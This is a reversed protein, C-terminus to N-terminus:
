SYNLFVVIITINDTSNKKLSHEALKKAINIRKNTRKKTTEDYCNLLIFNIVEQNTMVDWLGDCGLVFFKDNKDLKYRYLDPKHTLFPTADLDGFSRSVSLDKIRWDYGDFIIKGGLREIRSREEPWNPKHDKTLPMAFNDRCLVCRSDGINIVNLYDSGNYKFHIANLCTTGSFYAWNHKKLNSQIHDYVNNVYRKSLPFNVKKNLFFNSLNKKIYESVKKGGHGDYVGFFNVNKKSRHKNDSNLIIDHKDENQERIPGKISVSHVNM